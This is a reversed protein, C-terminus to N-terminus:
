FKVKDMIKYLITIITPSALALVIIFLVDELALASMTMIGFTTPWAFICIACLAIMILTAIKISSKNINLKKINLKMYIRKAFAM